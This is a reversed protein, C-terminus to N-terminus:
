DPLVYGRGTIGALIDALVEASDTSETQVKLGSDGGWQVWDALPQGAKLIWSDSVRRLECGQDFQEATVGAWIALRRLNTQYGANKREEVLAQAIETTLRLSLGSPLCYLVNGTDASGSQPVIEGTIEAAKEIAWFPLRKMISADWDRMSAKVNPSMTHM